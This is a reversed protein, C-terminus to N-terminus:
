RQPELVGADAAKGTAYANSANYGTVLAGVSLFYAPMMATIATLVGETVKGFGALVFLGLVPFVTLALGAKTLAYKKSEPPVEPQQLVKTQTM